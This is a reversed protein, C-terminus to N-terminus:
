DHVLWGVTLDDADSQLYLYGRAGGRGNVVLARYHYAVGKDDTEVLTGWCSGGDLQLRGTYGVTDGVGGYSSLAVGKVAGNWWEERQVVANPSWGGKAKLWNLGVQSSLVVGNLDAAKCAGPAMPLWRSSIVSGATRDLSYLPRGRGDLVAESLQSGWPLQRQVRVLCTGSMRVTGRYTGGRQERGLREVVRGEVVGGPLWREELLRAQPTAQATANVTGMAMVAYRGQMPAQCGKASAAQPALLLPAAISILGFTAACLPTLTTRAMGVALRTM